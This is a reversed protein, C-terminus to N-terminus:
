RLLLFSQYFTAPKCDHIYKSNGVPPSPYAGALELADGPNM